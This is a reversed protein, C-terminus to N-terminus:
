LFDEFHVQPCDHVTLQELCRHRQEYLDAVKLRIRHYETRSEPLIDCPQAVPSVLPCLGIRFQLLLAYFQNAVQHRLRSTSFQDRLLSTM